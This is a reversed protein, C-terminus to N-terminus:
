AELNEARALRGSRIWMLYALSTILPTTLVLAIAPDNSLDLVDIIAMSVGAGVAAAGVSAVSTRLWAWFGLKWRRGMVALVLSSMAAFPITVAMAIIVLFGQDSVAPGCAWAPSAILMTLAFVAATATRNM